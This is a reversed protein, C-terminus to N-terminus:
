YNGSRIAAQVSNSEIATLVVGADNVLHNWSTVVGPGLLNQVFKTGCRTVARTGSAFERHSRVTCKVSSCKASEAARSPAGDEFNLWLPYDPRKRWRFSVSRVRM